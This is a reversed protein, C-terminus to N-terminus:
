DLPTILTSHVDMYSTAGVLPTSGTLYVEGTGLHYVILLGNNFLHTLINYIRYVRSTEFQESFLLFSRM